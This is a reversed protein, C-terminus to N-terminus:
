PVMDWLNYTILFVDSNHKEGIFGNHQENSPICKPKECSRSFDKRERYISRIKTPSEPYFTIGCDLDEYTVINEEDIFQVIDDFPVAKKFNQGYNSKLDDEPRLISHIPFKTPDYPSIQTKNYSGM